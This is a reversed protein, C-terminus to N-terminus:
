LKVIRLKQGAYIMNRKLRNTRKIKAVSVGFKNAIGSLSDGKRVRYVTAKKPRSILLRKGAYIRSGKLNNLSKLNRMSIRYKKSISALTDGRRVRHYRRGGAYYTTPKINMRLKALKSYKADIQGKYKAPVWVKYHKKSPPTM